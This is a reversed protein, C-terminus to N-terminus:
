ASWHVTLRRVQGTSAVVWEPDADFRQPAFAADHGYDRWEGAHDVFPRGCCRCMNRETVRAINRWCMLVRMVTPRDTHGECRARDDSGDARVETRGAGKM